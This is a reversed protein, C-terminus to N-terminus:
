SGGAIYESLDLKESLLGYEIMLEQLEELWSNSVEAGNFEPLNIKALLAAPAGTSKVAIKRVKAPSKALAADAEGLATVFSEVVEPNSEAYSKSTMYVVPPVNPESVSVVPTLESLGEGKGATIFPESDVAADVTGAKVAANMAPLAMVVFKMTSSDAGAKDLAAEAALQLNGGLANVAVTKGNLEAANKISPDVLVGTVDKEPDPPSFGASAVFEVPVNKSIATIVGVPDAAAFQIQGNLLLPTAAAGSTLVKPTMNLGNKAFTGEEQAAYLSVNLIAPSTGVTIDTTESSTTESGTQATTGSEANSSSSSSGGGSSGCAAVSAACALAAIACIAYRLWPTRQISTRM